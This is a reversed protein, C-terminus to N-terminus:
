LEELTQVLAQLERWSIGWRWRTHRPAERVLAGLRQLEAGALSHEALETSGMGHRARVRYELLALLRLRLIHEFYARSRHSNQVENRLKEFPPPLSIGALPVEAAAEFSSSPQEELSERVARLMSYLTFALFVAGCLRIVLPKDAPEVYYYIPVSPIALLIALALYAGLL